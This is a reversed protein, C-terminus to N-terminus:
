DSKNPLIDNIIEATIFGGIFLIICGAFFNVKMSPTMIDWITKKGM